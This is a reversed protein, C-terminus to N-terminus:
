EPLGAERLGDMFNKTAAEDNIMLIWPMHSVRMNPALQRVKSIAESAHVERDTQGYIYARGLWAQLYAPEIELIEDLLAKAEDFECLFMLSRSLGNRYMNPYYPNLSMAARFHETAERFNGAHMLVFALWGRLDANGPYLEIGRQADKVSEDHNGLAAAALANLAIAWPVSDDLAMAREALEAAHALKADRDGTYDFRGSKAQWRAEGARSAHRTPRGM